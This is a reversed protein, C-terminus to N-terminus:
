QPNYGNPQTLQGNVDAISTITVSLAGSGGGFSQLTKFIIGTKIFMFDTTIVSQNPACTVTKVATTTGGDDFYYQFFGGSNAELNSEVKFFGTDSTITTLSTTTISFHQTNGNISTLLNFPLSTTATTPTFDVVPVVVDSVHLDRGSSVQSPFANRFSRQFNESVFPTDVM